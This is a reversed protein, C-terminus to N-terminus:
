GRPTDRLCVVHERQQALYDSVADPQEPYVVSLLDLDYKTCSPHPKSEVYYSGLGLDDRVINPLASSYTEEISYEASAQAASSMLAAAIISNSFIRTGM